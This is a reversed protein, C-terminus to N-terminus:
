EQCLAKAERMFAAVTEKGGIGAEMKNCLTRLNAYRYRLATARNREAETTQDRANSIALVYDRFATFGEREMAADIKAWTSRPLTTKRTIKDETM